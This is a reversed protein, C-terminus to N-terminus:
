SENGSYMNYDRLLSPSMCMTALSTSITATSAMATCGASTLRSMQHVWGLGSCSRYAARGIRFSFTSPMGVLGNMVVSRILWSRFPVNWGVSLAMQTVVYDLSIREENRECVGLRSGRPGLLNDVVDIAEWRNHGALAHRGVAEPQHCRSGASALASQRSAISSTVSTSRSGGPWCYCAPPRRM